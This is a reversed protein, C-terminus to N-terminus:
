SAAGWRDAISFDGAFGYPFMSYRLFDFHEFLPMLLQTPCKPGYRFVRCGQDNEAEPFIKLYDGLAKASSFAEPDEDDQV